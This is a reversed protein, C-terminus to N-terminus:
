RFQNKFKLKNKRRDGKGYRKPTGYFNEVLRSSEKISEHTNKIVITKEVSDFNKLLNEDIERAFSILKDKTLNRDNGIVLVPEKHAADKYSEISIFEFSENSYELLADKFAQDGGIVLIRKKSM